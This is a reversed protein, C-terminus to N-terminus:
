NNCLQQIPVAKFILERIQGALNESNMEILHNLVIHNDQSFTFNFGTYLNKKEEGDKQYDAIHWKGFTFTGKNDKSQLTNDKGNSLNCSILCAMIVTITVTINIPKM